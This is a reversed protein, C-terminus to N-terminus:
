FGDNRHRRELEDALAKAREADRKHEHAEVAEAAIVALGAAAIATETQKPWRSHVAVLLSGIGVAASVLLYKLETGFQEDTVDANTLVDHALRVLCVAAPIQLAFVALNGLARDPWDIWTLVLAVGPCVILIVGFIAVFFM